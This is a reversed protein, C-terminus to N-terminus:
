SVESLIVRRSPEPASTTRREATAYARELQERLAEYAKKKVLFEHHKVGDIEVNALHERGLVEITACPFPAITDAKSYISAFHVHEPFPGAKLKRIFTSMPTLQWISPAFLGTLAAGMYASPSGHHPSGLTVLGCAREHGGLRKIYYRGILGGKSHGVIALPGLDYLRYLREVKERVLLASEEISRTNFTGLLGGLNLPIVGYGDRQLRREIVALGRQTSMFGPLLLVPRRCGDLNKLPAAARAADRPDFYRLADRAEARLRRYAVRLRDM